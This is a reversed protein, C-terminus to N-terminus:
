RRTAVREMVKIEEGSLADYMSFILTDADKHHVIRKIPRGEPTLVDRMMGRLVITRAASDAMGRCHVAWTSLTDRWSATFEGTLNDFGHVHHAEFPQGEYSGIIREIVYRGGLSPTVTSTGVFERWPDDAGMRMKIALNWEGVMRELARHPAGPRAKDAMEAQMNRIGPDERTPGKAFHDQTDPSRCSTGLLVAVLCVFRAM